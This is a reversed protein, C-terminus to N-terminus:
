RGAIRSEVRQRQAADFHASSRMFDRILEPREEISLERAKALEKSIKAREELLWNFHEDCASIPTPYSKIKGQVDRLELELHSTIVKWTADIDAPQTSSSMEPADPIRRRITSREVTASNWPDRQESDTM